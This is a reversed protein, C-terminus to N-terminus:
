YELRLGTLKILGREAAWIFPALCLDLGVTITFAVALARLAAEAIGGLAEVLAAGLGLYVVVGVIAVAMLLVPLWARRDSASPLMSNSVAFVLYLWLWFDKMQTMAALGRAADVLNTRALADGVTGVGLRAYGMFIIAAAGTVLPALGILAERILDPKDTELYGLRLTGNPLREPVVSFRGARVGLLTAALWHSGEHLLVGPLMLISYMIIASEEHRLILLWVGQLHRHVWQELFILPLLMLLLWGGATLWMM